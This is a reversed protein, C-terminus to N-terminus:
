VRDLNDIQTNSHEIEVDSWDNDLEVCKELDDICLSERVWDEDPDTQKDSTATVTFTLTVDFTFRDEPWPVGVENAGHEAVECWGHEGALEKMHRGIRVLHEEHQNRAHTLESALSQVQRELSAVTEALFTRERILDGKEMSIRELEERYNDRQVRAASLDGVLAMNETHLRAETNEHM